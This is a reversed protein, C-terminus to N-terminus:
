VPDPQALTSDRKRAAHLVSCNRRRRKLTTRTAKTLNAYLPDRLPEGHRVHSGGGSDAHLVLVAAADRPKEADGLRHARTRRRRGAVPPTSAGMQRSGSPEVANALANDSETSSLVCRKSDGGSPCFVFNRGTKDMQKATTRPELKWKLQYVETSVSSLLALSPPIYYFLFFFLSYWCCERTCM